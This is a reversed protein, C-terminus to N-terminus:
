SRHGGHGTSPGASMARHMLAMMKPDNPVIAPDGPYRAILRRMLEIEYRQDVMIGINLPGLVSSRGDPNSNYQMAMDVAAAHHKIMPRAFQVDFASIELNPSLWLDIVSPPPAEIFMWEHELGDVGRDLTVVEARGLSAMTQPGQTVHREVTDLVAIEFAQNRIIAHALRRIVPNTGRPDELYANAMGVAGQHHRRMNRAFALDAAAARQAREQSLFVDRVVVPVHSSESPDSIYETAAAPSALLALAAAGSIILRTMDIELVHDSLLV